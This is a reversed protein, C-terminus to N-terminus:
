RSAAVPTPTPTPTINLGPSLPTPTPTATPNSDSDPDPQSHNKDSRESDAYSDRQSNPCLGPHTFCISDAHTLFGTFRGSSAHTVFKTRFRHSTSRLLRCCDSAAFLGGCGGCSCGTDQCASIACSLTIGAGKSRNAM